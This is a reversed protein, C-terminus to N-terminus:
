NVFRPVSCIMWCIWSDAGFKLRDLPHSGTGSIQPLDRLLPERCGSAVVNECFLHDYPEHGAQAGCLVKEDLVKFMPRQTGLLSAM